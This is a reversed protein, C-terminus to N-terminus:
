EEEATGCFLYGYGAGSLTMEAEMRGEQATLIYRVVRFMSANSTVAISYQGDAPTEAGAIAACLLM